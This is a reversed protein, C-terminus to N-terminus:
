GARDFAEDGRLLYGEGWRTLILPTDFGKDVKARLYGVYVDVVNSRFEGRDGYLHRMAEGRTIVQGPHRALLELLAYERPSLVLRRGGRRVERAATDLELDHARLVAAARASALRLLARLHALLVEPTAPRSLFTDAGAELGCVGARSDGTGTLLLVPTRLGDHRWRGLLGLADAEQGALDLALADHGGSRAGADGEALSPALTVAAGQARLGRALRRVDPAASAILLVGLCGPSPSPPCRRPSPRM